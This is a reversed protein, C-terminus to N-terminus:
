RSTRRSVRSRAASLMREAHSGPRLNSRYAEVVRGEGDVLYSVRNTVGLFRGVEFAEHMAGSADTLLRYPLRRAAVFAQHSAADDRSVGFVEVGADRLDAWADRLACVQRICGATEDKPYFTLVFARGRLADLGWRAGTEDRAEFAPAAEGARLM